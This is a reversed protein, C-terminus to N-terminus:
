SLLLKLKSQSRKGLRLGFEPNERRFPEQAWLGVRKRRLSHTTNKRLNLGAEIGLKKM